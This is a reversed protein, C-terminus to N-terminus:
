VVQNRLAAEGRWLRGLNDMLFDIVGDEYRRTEGGTHPTILVNPMAWLPSDAPLPEVEACDLAAGGIGGTRLSAILAPEDVCRGRGVNVLVASSKMRGFATANMCRETDPTLPCTLAVFDARPLVEALGAMGHVEHAAGAGGAPDRRIGIVRMDFARALQALRGGIRGLGVIVLTKGGLEDERGAPDGIMGRWVRGHQNDRAEPLRRIMALILAMAHESVARANVGAASALRIGAARLLDFGYQDTGASISQIFRLRPAQGILDNHWLGSVVVVDAEKVRARLEDRSFVEFAAIGTDRAEFCALMRYAPHAFCVRIDPRAPFM